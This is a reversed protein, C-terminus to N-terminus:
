VRDAESPSLCERLNNQVTLQLAEKMEGTNNIDEGALLWCDDDDKM